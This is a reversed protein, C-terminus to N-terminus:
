LYDNFKKIFYENHGRMFNYNLFNMNNCIAFFYDNMLNMIEKEDLKDLNLDYFFDYPCTGERYGEATTFKFKIFDFYSVFPLNNLIEIISNNLNKDMNDIFFNITKDEINHAINTVEFREYINNNNGLFKDKKIISNRLYDIENKLYDEENSGTHLLCYLVFSYREEIGLLDLIFAIFEGNYSKKGTEGYVCFTFDGRCYEDIIIQLTSKIKKELEKNYSNKLFEFLEYYIGSNNKTIFIIKGYSKILDLIELIEDNSKASNFIIRLPDEYNIEKFIVEKEPVVSNNSYDHCKYIKELDAYIFDSLSKLWIELISIKTNYSLDSIIHWRKEKFFIKFDKNISKHKSSKLIDKIIKEYLFIVFEDKEDVKIINKRYEFERWFDRCNYYSNFIDFYSCNRLEKYAQMKINNRVDIDNGANIRFLLFLNDITDVLIFAFLISLYCISISWFINLKLIATLSNNSIRYVEFKTYILYFNLIPFFISILIMMRTIKSKVINFSNKNLIAFSIKNYGWYYIKEDNSAIISQLFAIFIGYMTLIAVTLSLYEKLNYEFFIINFKYMYVAILISLATIIIIVLNSKIVTFYRLIKLVLVTLYIDIKVKM